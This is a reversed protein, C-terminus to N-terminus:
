SFTTVLQVRLVNPILPGVAISVNLTVPTVSALLSIPSLLVRLSACTTVSYTALNVNWATLLQILAFPVLLTALTVLALSLMRTTTCTLVSTSALLGTSITVQTAYLALIITPLTTLTVGSVVQSASCVPGLSLMRTLLGPVLLMALPLGFM